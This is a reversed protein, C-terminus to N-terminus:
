RRVRGRVQAAIRRCEELLDAIDIDELGVLMSQLYPDEEQESEFIDWLDDDQTEEDLTDSVEQRMMKKGRTEVEQQFQTIGKRLADVASYNVTIPSGAREELGNGDKLSAGGAGPSPEGEGSNRGLIRLIGKM